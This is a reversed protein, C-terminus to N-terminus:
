IGARVELDAMVELASAALPERFSREARAAAATALWRSGDDHDRAAAESATTADTLADGGRGLAAPPDAAAAALV